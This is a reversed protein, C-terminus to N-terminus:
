LHDETYKCQLCRYYPQNCQKLQCVTHGSCVQTHSKEAGPPFFLKFDFQTSGIIGRKEILHLVIDTDKIPYGCVEVM